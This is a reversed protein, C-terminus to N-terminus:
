AKAFTYPLEIAVVTGSPVNASVSLVGKGDHLLALRERINTLGLGTGRTATNAPDFGLGTDAVTVRLRGDVIEAAVRISGGDPKPELGHKIANEVISQLMMPPFAASRLGDPVAFETHLRDEMRVKLIELYARVLDIERGLTTTSERMKPLAARLYQILNKQMASARPPDTEILHDISALTNFLFHPEVQAQMTQVRAEALQRKLQEAEALETAEAVCVEVKVRRGAEVKMIVSFIVFFISFTHLVEGVAGRRSADARENALDELDSIAESLSEEIKARSAERAALDAAAQAVGDAGPLAPPKPPAPLAPIAPLEPVAPPPSAPAGATSAGSPAREIRVGEKDITIRKRENGDHADIVVGKTTVSVNAKNGPKDGLEAEAIVDPEAGERKAAQADQKAEAAAQEAERKAAAAEKRAADASAKTNTRREAPTISVAGNDDVHVEYRVKASAREAVQFFPMETLISVAAIFLIALLFFRWWSISALWDSYARLLRGARAFFVAMTEKSITPMWGARPGAGAAGSGTTPKPADAGSPPPSNSTNTM